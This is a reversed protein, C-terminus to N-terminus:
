KKSQALLFLIGEDEANQGLLYDGVHGLYKQIHLESPVNFKQLAESMRVAQYPEVFDDWAGHYLFVPPSKESVHFVPSAERWIKQNEEFSFGLYDKVYPSDPWATLDTPSGGAVLAKLGNAPNLGALLVLQSGASYGWGYIQHPDINLTSSHNRLWFIADEVDKLPAPFKAEDILSYHINFVVFGAQALNECIGKMDGRLKKWSGGHVVIVAPHKDNSFPLYLDGELNRFSNRKYVNNPVVSYEFEKPAKSYEPWVLSAAWVLLVFHIPIRLWLLWLPVKAFRKAHLRIMETHVSLFVVLM